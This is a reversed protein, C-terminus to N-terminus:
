EKSDDTDDNANEQKQCGRNIKWPKEPEANDGSMKDGKIIEREEGPKANDEDAYKKSITYILIILSYKGYLIERLEFHNSSYAEQPSM